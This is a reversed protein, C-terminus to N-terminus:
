QQRKIMRPDTQPILLQPRQQMAEARKTAVFNFHLASVKYVALQLAALTEFLSLPSQIDVDSDPQVTVQVIPAVPAQDTM